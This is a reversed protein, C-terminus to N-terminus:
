KLSSYARDIVDIAVDQMDLKTHTYIRLTTATDSHGLRDSVISVPVGSAVLMSAHTHRLAHINTPSIQLRKCIKAFGCSLSSPSLIDTSNYNTCVWEDLMGKNARSEKLKRLDTILSHPLKVYRDTGSKTSTIMVSGKTPIAARCIHLSHETFDIDFWKVACIEGRRAGTYLALKIPICLYSNKTGNILKELDVITFIGMKHTHQKPFVVGRTLPNIDIISKSVADKFIANCITRYLLISKASYSKSLDDIMDQIDAPTISDIRIDGIYPAFMSKARSYLAYTNHSIDPQKRALWECYYEDFTKNSPNYVGYKIKKEIDALRAVAQQKTLGKCSESRQVRKGDKPPLDYIIHYHKGRKVISGM